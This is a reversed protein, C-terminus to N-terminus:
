GHDPGQEDDFISPVPSEINMSSVLLAHGVYRAMVFMVAVTNDCGIADVVRDLQETVGVGDQRIADIVYRQIQKETEDMQDSEEPALREIDRVWEQGFGLKVSLREHQHKEYAVDRMTAVTLAILEVVQQDLAGKSLNTFDIFAGLAEPQHATRAFFEGLYGLREYKARLRGAISPPLEDFSLRHIKDTM